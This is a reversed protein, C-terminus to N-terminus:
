FVSKLMELFSRHPKAAKARQQVISSKPRHAGTVSKFHVYVHNQREWSNTLEMLNCQSIGDTRESGLTAIVLESGRRHGSRFHDM